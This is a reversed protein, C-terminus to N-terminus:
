AIFHIENYKNGGIGGALKRSSIRVKNSCFGCTFKPPSLPIRVWPERELVCARWAHGNSWEPM